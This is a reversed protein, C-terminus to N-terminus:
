AAEPKKFDIILHVRANEGMNIACHPVQHAIQFMCGVIPIFMEAGCFIRDGPNTVIPVIFRAWEGPPERKWDLCGGPPLTDLWAAGNEGVPVGPYAIQLVRRCRALFALPAKDAVNDTGGPLRLIGIDQHRRAYLWAAVRWTDVHGVIAFNM